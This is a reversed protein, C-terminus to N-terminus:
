LNVDGRKQLEKLALNVAQSARRDNLGTILTVAFYIVLIAVALAITVGPGSLAGAFHLFAMIGVELLLVHIVKRGLAQKPTLEKKSYGVLQIVAALLGYLFPSFLVGYGLRVDPEFISGVVAMALAICVVTVFYTPLISTKVYDKFKM